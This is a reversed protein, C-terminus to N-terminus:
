GRGQVILRPSRAAQRTGDAREIVAVAQCEGARVDRYTRTYLPAPDAVLDVVTRAVEEEACVLGYVLVVGAARPVYVYVEIQVPELGVFTLTRCKPDECIGARVRFGDAAQAGCLLVAVGLLLSRRWM